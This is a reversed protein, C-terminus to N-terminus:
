SQCQAVGSQSVVARCVVLLLHTEWPPSPFKAPLAPVYKERHYFLSPDWDFLLIRIPCTLLANEWRPLPFTEPRNNATNSYIKSNVISVTGGWDTGGVVLVGAGVLLVHTEWQPSPFKQARVNGATNGSITCSSITVSGYLVLVGGGQLIRAFHSDLGHPRHSSELDRYNVSADTATACALILALADAVKGDPRHSGRYIPLIYNVSANATKRALTVALVDAIKGDPRHSSKFMLVCLLTITVTGSGVYVGGGSGAATNGTISSSTIMVTGSSVFVGGGIATNSYIQSNVISVTGGLVAVGGGHTEWPPSPFNQAHARVNTPHNSYVQSNVISVTGSYVVVGGGQLCRPLCSDGMPAIPVKSCSRACLWSHEWLDLFVNDHGHRFLRPCWRGAFMSCFTLRGNPRHSSKFMLTCLILQIGVASPARILQCQALGSLSVAAMSCFPLRGNPRHSFELDRRCTRETYNVLANAATTCAHTPDFLDAIKGHPCQSVKPRQRVYAVPLASRLRSYLPLCTLLTGIPAIPVKKLTQLVYMSYNVPANATKCAHTPALMDAMKGDPGHSSGPNINLVRRPSSSSANANLVVSGVVAAELVVRRTINLEANLIYTGPALVIRGVGTNALASFLGVSTSVATQLERRHSPVLQVSNLGPIDSALASPRLGSPVLIAHTSAGIPTSIPTAAPTDPIAAANIPVVSAIVMPYAVRAITAFPIASVSPGYRPQQRCLHQTRQDPQPRRRGPRRHNLQVAHMGVALARHSTEAGTSVVVGLPDPPCTGCAVPCNTWTISYSACASPQAEFYSCPLSAGSADLAGSIVDDACLHTPPPPRLPPTQASEAWPAHRDPHARTGDGDPSMTTAVASVGPVILALLALKVWENRYSRNNKSWIVFRTNRGSREQESCVAYVLLGLRLLVLAGDVCEVWRLPVGNTPAAEEVPDGTTDEYPFSYKVDAKGLKSEIVLEELAIESVQRAGKRLGDDATMSNRGACTCAAGCFIACSDLFSNGASNRHLGIGGVTTCVYPCLLVFGYGPMCHQLHLPMYGLLHGATPASRPPPSPMSVRPGCGVCDPVIACEAAESDPDGGDDSCSSGGAILCNNMCVMAPSHLPPSPPPLPSPSPSSSSPSHPPSHPPSPPSSLPPSYAARIFVLSVPGDNLNCTLKTGVVTSADPSQSTCTNAVPEAFVNRECEVQDSSARTAFTPAISFADFMFLSRHLHCECGTYFCSNSCISPATGTSPSVISFGTTPSEIINKSTFFLYTNLSVASAPLTSPTDTSSHTCNEIRICPHTSVNALIMNGFKRGTGERMRMTADGVRTSLGGAGVLTMSYFAPHLSRCRPTSAFRLNGVAGLVAFLFLRKGRM